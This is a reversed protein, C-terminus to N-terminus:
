SNALAFTMAPLGGNNFSFLSLILWASFVNRDEKYFVNLDPVSDFLIIFFVEPSAAIAVARVVFTSKLDCYDSPEIFSGYSAISSGGLFIFNSYGRFSCLTFELPYLM